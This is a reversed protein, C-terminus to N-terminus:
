ALEKVEKIMSRPIQHVGGTMGAAYSETMVIGDPGDYLVFGITNVIYPEYTYEAEEVWPGLDIAKADEWIVWLAKM